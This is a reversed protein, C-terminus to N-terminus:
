AEAKLFADPVVAKVLSREPVKFPVLTSVGPEQMTVGFWVDASEITVPNHTILIFQTEDSFGRMVQIFREVNRGDLPADVEDLIVLPTPKVKLLAFLFALASLAREGGSLLELRQRRKGPVTVQIDVGSDLMNASDALELSGEGGGFVKQFTESFAVQLKVFTSEFRDKTLRDLEEVSKLIEQKGSLIDDVQHTLEDHRASLREFAEVAGLNVDGMARLERRLRAVVSASDAPIEIGPAAALAEDEGIGYEELLRQVINSKQSDLRVRKLESHHASESLSAQETQMARIREAIHVSALSHETKATTAAKLEERMAEVAASFRSHASEADALIKEYKQREPGLNEAKQSRHADLEIVHALRREADRLAVQAVEKRNQAETLRSAVNGADSTREALLRMAEDRESEVRSIDIEDIEETEVANLSEAEARLKDRSKVTSSHEHRLSLLWARAEDIGSSDEKRREQFKNAEAIIQERDAALAAVVNRAKEVSESLEKSEDIVDQLESRRQVIGSGQRSSVGGTVAGSSHVVEGDLTVMRSWGSTKAFKLAIELSEVIVVRGLLSEIVPRHSDLCDVLDSARGVVGKEQLIRRLEPSAPAPRMLNLPQFTTRGARRDRLFAIAVKALSDHNVILDNASAGLAIDFAHALDPSVNIAAAVPVFEGDIERRSAADLVARTGQSFGDNAEITAELGRRRGDLAALRALLDRVQKTAEDEDRRIDELRIRIQNEAEQLAAQGSVLREAEAEAELLAAELDPLTADIGALEAAIQKLRIQRHAMEVELRQRVAVVQRAKGLALELEQLREDLRKAELDVGGLREHLEAHAKAESEFQAKAKELDSEALRRRDEASSTEEDITAALVALSELKHEAIQRQAHAQELDSQLRQQEARLTELLIEGKRIEEQNTLSEHEVARIEVTLEESRRSVEASVVQLRSIEETASLLEKSLLGSEVERLSAMTSKYQRAQEAEAALPERQHEIETIIDHIRVLHDEAAQLRRLAEVRRARYRQVGAAEDIWGRRQQPSAALAQDIESQGVIAYGARGLGSDALLDNIDRLRCTRRNIQYDSEGGRTLRRTISVQAADMPLAGDENDFLLSVECFGIPKRHTSGAFIVEKGTQARLQRANSEGLGWLIADVINSKGCGNPGVVAIIDGDLDFEAKDAFTKFGLIKVRKLKM